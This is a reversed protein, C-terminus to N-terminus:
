DEVILTGRVMGMSCSFTFTGTRDPTFTITNVGKQLPMFIDFASLILSDACGVRDARDIEWVVPINKKVTFVDPDYSGYPTVKMRITQTEETQIATTTEGWTPWASLLLLGNQATQISLALAIAGAGLTAWVRVSGKISTFFIGIGLLAPLTGLVFLGLALASLWPNGLSLAYLQMAQTFGCPLFFTLAGAMWAGKPHGLPFLRKIFMPFSAPTKLHFSPPLWQVLRLGLFFLLIAIGILLFGNITPSLHVTSGLTGILFGFFVFSTLRGAHFKLHFKWPHNFKSASGMASSLSALIGALLASCTSFSALIGIGLISLLPLTRSPDLSPSSTFPLLFWLVILALVFLIRKPSVRFKVPANSLRYGLPSLLSEIEKSTYVRDATLHIQQTHLNVTIEQVSSLARLTQAITIECSSCHMGQVHFIQKSM